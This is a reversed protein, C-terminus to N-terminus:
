GRGGPWGTNWNQAPPLALRCRASAVGFPPVTRPLRGGLNRFASSRRAAYFIRRTPGPSRVVKGRQPNPVPPQAPDVEQGEQGGRPSLRVWGKSGPQGARGAYTLRHDLEISKGGMGGVAHATM